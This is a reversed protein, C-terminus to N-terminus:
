ACLMHRGNCYKREIGRRLMWLVTYIMSFLPIIEIEPTKEGIQVPGSVSRASLGFSGRNEVSNDVSKTSLIEM